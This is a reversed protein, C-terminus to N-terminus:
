ELDDTWGAFILAGYVPQHDQDVGTIPRLQKLAAYLMPYPDGPAYPVEVRYEGLVNDPGALSKSPFLQVLAAYEGDEHKGGFVRKIRAYAGNLAIGKHVIDGTIAM